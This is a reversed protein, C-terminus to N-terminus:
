GENPSKTIYLANVSDLADKMKNNFILSKPSDYDIFRYQIFISAAVFVLMFIYSCWQINIPLAVTMSLGIIIALQKVVFFKTIIHAFIKNDTTFEELM